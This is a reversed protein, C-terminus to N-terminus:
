GGKKGKRKEVQEAEVQAEVEAATPLALGDESKPLNTLAAAAVAEENIIAEPPRGFTYGCGKCQKAKPDNIYKCHPCDRM